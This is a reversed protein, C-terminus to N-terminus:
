GNMEGKFFKLEDQALKLELAHIRDSMDLIRGTLSRIETDRSEIIKDKEELRNKMSSFNEEIQQLREIELELKLSREFYLNKEKVLSDVTEGLNKIQLQLQDFLASEATSKSNEASSAKWERVLGMIPKSIAIMIIVVALTFTLGNILPDNSQAIKSVLNPDLTDSM